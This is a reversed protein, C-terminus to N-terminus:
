KCIRSRENSNNFFASGTLLVALKNDDLLKSKNSTFLLSGSIAFVFVCTTTTPLVSSPFQRLRPSGVTTCCHLFDCLAVAPCCIQKWESAPAVSM